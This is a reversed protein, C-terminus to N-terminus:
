CVKKTNSDVTVARTCFSTSDVQLLDFFGCADKCVLCGNQNEFPDGLSFKDTVFPDVDAFPNLKLRTENSADKAANHTCNEAGTEHILMHKTLFSPARLLNRNDGEDGSMAPQLSPHLKYPDNEERITVLGQLSCTKRASSRRALSALTMKGSANSTSANSQLTNAQTVNGLESIKSLNVKTRGPVTISLDRDSVKLYTDKKTLSVNLESHNTVNETTTPCNEFSKVCIEDMDLNQNNATPTSNQKGDYSCLANCKLNRDIERKELDLTKGSEDNISALCWISEDSSTVRERHAASSLWLEDFSKPANEASISRQLYALPQGPNNHQIVDSAPLDDPAIKCEITDNNNNNRLLKGDHLHKLPNTCLMSPKVKPTLPLVLAAKTGANSKPRPRSVQSSALDVVDPRAPSAYPPIGGSLQSNQAEGFLSPAPPYIARSKDVTRQQAPNPAFPSTHFNQNEQQFPNAGFPSGSRPPSVTAFPDGAATTLDNAPQQRQQQTSLDLLTPKPPEKLFDEKSAKKFPQSATQSQLVALDAFPDPFKAAPAFPDSTPPHISTPQMPVASFANNVGSGTQPTSAPSSLDGFISSLQTSSDFSMWSPNGQLNGQLNGAAPPGTNPWATHLGAAGGVVAVGGAPTQSPFSPNYSTFPQQLFISWKFSIYVLLSRDM